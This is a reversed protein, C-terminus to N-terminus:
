RVASTRACEEPPAGWSPPAHRRPRARSALTVAAGARRCSRASSVGPKPAAGQVPSRRAGEPSAHVEALRTSQAPSGKRRAIRAHPAPAVARARSPAVWASGTWAVARARRGATPLSASFRTPTACPGRRAAISAAAPRVAANLSAGRVCAGAVDCCGDSCSSANCGGADIPPVGVCGGLVPVCAESPGLQSCDTCRAGGIGCATLASGAVCAGGSCCGEPCSAASCGADLGGDDGALTDLLGARGCAASLLGATLVLALWHARANMFFGRLHRCPARRRLAGPFSYGVVRPAPLDDFRPSRSADFRATRRSPRGGCRRRATRTAAGRAFALGRTGRRVCAFPEASARARRGRRRARRPARAHRSRRGAHAGPTVSRAMRAPSRFGRDARRECWVELRRRVEAGQCEACGAGLTATSARGGGPVDAVGFTVDTAGLWTTLPERLAASQAVADMAERVARAGRAPDGAQADVLLGREAGDVGAGGDLRRRARRDLRRHRRAFTELGRGLAAPRARRRDRGRSGHRGERAHRRRRAHAACLGRRADRRPAAFRRRLSGRRDSTIRGRGAVRAAGYLDDASRRRRCRDRHARRRLDSLIALRQQISGDLRAVIAGPDGFDPARGGHQARMQRDSDLMTKKTDSWESAIKARLPGALASGPVDVAIAEKGSVRTPMTRTAYPALRAIKRGVERGRVMGLRALDGRRRTARARRWWCSEAEACSGPLRRGPTRRVAVHRRGGACAGPACGRAADRGGMGAGRAGRRRRRLGRVGWRDGTGARSRDGVGRVRHGGSHEASDGCAGRSRAARAAVHRRGRRDHGRGAAWRACARPAGSRGVPGSGGAAKRPLWERVGGGSRDRGARDGPESATFRTATRRASTSASRSASTAASAGPSATSSRRSRRVEAPGESQVQRDRGGAPRAVCAGVPSRVPARTAPSDPPAAISACRTTTSLLRGLRQWRVAQRARARRRRHSACGDQGSRRRVEARVRRLRPQRAERPRVAPHADREGLVLRPAGEKNESTCPGLACSRRGERVVCQEGGRPCDRVGVVQEHFCNIARGDLDCISRGGTRAVARQM